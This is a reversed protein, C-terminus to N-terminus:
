TSIPQKEEDKAQAAARDIDFTRDWLFWVTLVIGTIIITTITFTWWLRAVFQEGHAAKLDFM